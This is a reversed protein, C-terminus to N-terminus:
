LESKFIYETNNNTRYRINFPPISIFPHLIGTNKSKFIYGSLKNFEFVEFIENVGNVSVAFKNATSITKNMSMTSIVKEYRHSNM